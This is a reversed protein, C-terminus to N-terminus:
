AGGKAKAVATKILEWLDAAKERSAKTTATSNAVGLVVYHEAEQLLALLEAESV